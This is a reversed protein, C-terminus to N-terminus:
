AREMAKAAVRWLRLLERRYTICYGDPNIRVVDARRKVEAGIDRLAIEKAQAKQRRRTV